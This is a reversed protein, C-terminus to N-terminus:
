SRGSARGRSGYLRPAEHGIEAVEIAAVVFETGHVVRMRTFRTLRNLLPRCSFACSCRPGRWSWYSTAQRLSRGSDTCGALLFPLAGADVQPVDELKGIDVLEREAAPLFTSGTPIRQDVTDKTAPRCFAYHARLGASRQVGADVLVARVDAPRILAGIGGSDVGFLPGLVM